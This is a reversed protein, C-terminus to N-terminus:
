KDSGRELMKAFSYIRVDGEGEIRVRFHDCRRPRVPFTFSGTGNGDARGAFHWNGDSDYEIFAEAFSGLPLNMRINFRGVYKHEVTEYGTLGTTASWKVPAEKEGYNGSVNLLAHGDADIFYLEGSRKAWYLAHVDDEAHWVGYATDLVFIRYRGESDRMSIYYKDGLSGAKADFYKEKGLAASVSVPLSGDYACIDTIGKYYLTENVVVLSRGSGAQVGRCAADTIRHAGTASVYVKHLVNEKFFIPYGLFTVAGTWEGDTGVSAVYSDTSLGLFQNWNKFDGLACCYIENISVGNVMGYKCGWLRNQAEIVFDMNPMSRKVSISGSEQTHTQDILGVVVIYDEGRDYIIKTGNLAEIQGEVATGAAAAGSITVGDYVAFAAGIGATRIKTYVSAIETWIASSASYQRLIHVASSTDIWLSGNEPAEPATKGVAPEAYATGDAKCISYTIAGESEFAADISGCDTYNETNIYLRDPFIVIYAGMSVLQKESDSINLGKDAFFDTLEDEGYFLRSGDIYALEKKALLGNPKSIRAVIGRRQRNAMLPFHASSLNKMEYFEGAGIKLNHNYGGFNDTLEQRVQSSPLTPFYPM